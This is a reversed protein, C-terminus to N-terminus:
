EEVPTISLIRSGQSGPAGLPQIGNTRRGAAAQSALYINFADTLRQKLLALKQAAVGPRDYMTPLIRAYKEEDEKRLVGGELAKGITQKVGAIEAELKAPTEIGALRLLSSAGPATSLGAIPGMWAKHQGISSELRDLQSLGIKFDALASVASDALKGEGQNAAERSERSAAINAMRRQVELAGQRYQNMANSQEKQAAVSAANDPSQGVRIPEAPPRNLDIPVVRDGATVMQTKPLPSYGPLPKITGDTMTVAMMPGNPGMVEVPQGVAKPMRSAASDRLKAAADLYHRGADERGVAILKGGIQEYQAARSLLDDPSAGGASSATQLQQGIDAMAQRAAQQQQRQQGATWANLMQQQGTALGEQIPTKGMLHSGMAMIAQARAQRRMEPTFDAGMLSPLAGAANADFNRGLALLGRGIGRGISKIPNM